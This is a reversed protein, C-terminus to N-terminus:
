PFHLCFSKSIEGSFYTEFIALIFIFAILINLSIIPSFFNEKYEYTTNLVLAVFFLTSFITALIHKNLVTINRSALIGGLLRIASLDTFSFFHIIKNEIESLSFYDNNNLVFFCVVPQTFLLLGTIFLYM